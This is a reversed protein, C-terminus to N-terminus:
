DPRSRKFLSTQGTKRSGDHVVGEGAPAPRGKKYDKINEFLLAPGGRSLNVRAIAGIEEDWDVETGIRALEGAAELQDLWTRLSPQDPSPHKAGAPKSSTMENM